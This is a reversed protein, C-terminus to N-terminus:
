VVSKRDEYKITPNKGIVMGPKVNEYTIGSKDEKEVATYGEPNAPVTEEVKIDGNLGQGNGYTTITNTKDATGTFYAMTGGVVLLAGLAVTASILALKRRM